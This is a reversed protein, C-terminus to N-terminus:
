DKSLNNLQSRFNNVKNEGSLWNDKIKRKKSFDSSYYLKLVKTVGKPGRLERKIEM